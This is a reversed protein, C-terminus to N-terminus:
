RVRCARHAGVGANARHLRELDAQEAGADDAAAGEGDQLAVLLLDPAAGAALDADAVDDVDVEARARASAPSAASTPLSARASIARGSISATISSIPPVPM